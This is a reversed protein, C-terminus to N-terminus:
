FNFKLEFNYGVILGMHYQPVWECVPNLRQGEYVKDAPLYFVNHNPSGALRWNVQRNLKKIAQESNKCIRGVSIVTAGTCYGEIAGPKTPHTSPRNGMKIDVVCVAWKPIEPKSPKPAPASAAYTSYDISAADKLLESTPDIGGELQDKKPRAM